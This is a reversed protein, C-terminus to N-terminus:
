KKANNGIRFYDLNEDHEIKKYRHQATEYMRNIIAKLDSQSGIEEVIKALEGTFEYKLEKEDFKIEDILSMPVNPNIKRLLRIVYEAFFEKVDSKRKAEALKERYENELEHEYKVFSLMKERSEM